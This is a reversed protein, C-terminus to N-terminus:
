RGKPWNKVDSARPYNFIKTIKLVEGFVRETGFVKKCLLLLRPSFLDMHHTITNDQRDGKKGSIFFKCVQGENKPRM